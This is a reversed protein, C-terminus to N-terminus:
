MSYGCNDCFKAGPLLDKGCEPCTSVAEPAQKPQPANGQPANGQPPNGQQPTHSQQPYGQQPYGQQPYGQPPVQQVPAQPAPMAPRTTYDLARDYATDMRNEQRRIREDRERLQKEREAEKQAQLGGTMAMMDRMMNYMQEQHFRNDQDRAAREAALRQEDERKQEALMKHAEKIHDANYKSEAFAKANEGGTLAWIKEESLDQARDWKMKETDAAHELRTREMEAEHRRENERSQEAARQMALFQQFQAEDEERELDRRRKEDDFDMDRKRQELDLGTEAVKRQQELQKDFRRDNYEDRLGEIELEKRVIAVAKEAEGEMRVREFEIGDRLQMMRMAMGRKYNGTAISDKLEQIENQRILGSKEIEMLAAERESDSRAERIIRENKLLTKFKEVEDEHLLRDKNIEDIRKDFELDSSAENLRQANQADSLRNKFDNTRRLYDLETESLYLERSLSRFREMDENSSSIEVIRVVSIGFFMGPAAENIKEKILACLEKPLRTTKIEADYLVDQVINRVTDNIEDIIQTTNIQKRDTLYHLIFRDNDTIKFYANVGLDIDIHATQIRMPVFEKYDDPNQRKAGILLPFAKDLLIIVSFAAGRKANELIAQQQQLYLQEEPSNEEEKKKRSRFLNIIFGWGKKVSESAPKREASKTFDYTGGNMTAITRGNSRIYATTGEPIIIGNLENYSDFEAEDIVRAVQGPQINWYIRGRVNNLDSSAQTEETSAKPAPAPSSKAPAPAAALRNGCSTCFKAGPRLPTGCKPCTQPQGTKEIKQGCSTCFKAGERLEANCKPCKMIIITKNQQLYKRSKVM